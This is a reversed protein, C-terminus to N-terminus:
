RKSTAREYLRKNEGSVTEEGRKNKRAELITRRDWLPFHSDGKQTSVM